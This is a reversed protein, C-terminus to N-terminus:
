SGKIMGVWVSFHEAEIVGGIERTTEVHRPFEGRAVMHIQSDGDRIGGNFENQLQRDMQRLYSSVEGRFNSRGVGRGLHTVFYVTATQRIVEGTFMSRNAINSTRFAKVLEGDKLDQNAEVAVDNDSATVWM